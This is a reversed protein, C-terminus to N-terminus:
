KKKNIQTILKLETIEGNKITLFSGDALMYPNDPLLLFKKKCYYFAKNNIIKIHAGDPLRYDQSDHSYPSHDQSYVFSQLFFTTIIILSRIAISRFFSSLLFCIASLNIYHKMTM